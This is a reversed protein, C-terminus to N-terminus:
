SPAKGSLSATVLRDWEARLRNELWDLADNDLEIRLGATLLPLLQPISAALKGLRVRDKETTILAAAGSSRASAVVRELDKETYRHHDAFATRNALKLGAAELGAFFQEPRAIGCFAAVTGDVVPVDMKRLVRWVPGQWGWAKLEREFEPEEEPIAIV